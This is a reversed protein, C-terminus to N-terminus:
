EPNGNRRLIIRHKKTTNILVEISKVNDLNKKGSYFYIDDGIVKEPATEYDLIVYKLM